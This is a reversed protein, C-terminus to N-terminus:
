LAKTSEAPGKNERAIYPWCYRQEPAYHTQARTTHTVAVGNHITYLQTSDVTRASLSFQTNHVGMSERGQKGGM